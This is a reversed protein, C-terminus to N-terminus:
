PTTQFGRVARCLLLKGNWLVFGTDVALLLNIIRIRLNVWPYPSADQSPPVRKNCPCTPLPWKSPSRSVHLCPSMWHSSPLRHLVSPMSRRRSQSLYSPVYRRFQPCPTCDTGHLHKAFCGLAPSSTANDGSRPLAPSVHESTSCRLFHHYHHYKSEGYPEWTGPCGLVSPPIQHRLFTAKSYIWAWM